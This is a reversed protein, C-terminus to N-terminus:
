HQGSHNRKVRARVIGYLETLIMLINPLVPSIVLILLSPIFPVWTGSVFWLFCSGSLVVIAVTIAIGVPIAGWIRWVISGGVISWGCIWLGDVWGSWVGLLPREGMAASILQSVMQAHIYVGRMTVGYPTSIHDPTGEPRNFSPDTVGIIVIRDKVLKSIYAERNLVSNVNVFDAVKRDKGTPYRYNLLISYNQYDLNKNNSSIDFSQYGGAHSSLAKLRAKGLKVDGEPTNEPEIGKQHLYQLALEWSLANEAPCPSNSNTDIFLLHRRLIDDSDLLVDSFVLREKPIFTAPSIGGPDNNKPDNVKCVAFLKDNKNFLKKLEPNSKTGASLDRYIDLGIARPQHKDIEQLLQTLKTDTISSSGKDRDDLVDRQTVEVVLIRPDPQEASRLQMMRDYAMLELPQLIGLHRVGLVLAAVALSAAMVMKFNPVYRRPEWNLLQCAPNQFIVPLWSACPYEGELGQLRERAERVALYSPQGSAFAKLFYKFFEQAIRDPIVERMVITQPINLSALEAALGLGDCSNFIALFLGNAIAIELAKKIDNPSVGETENIEILGREIDIQSSHGAFFLIDWNSERLKESFEARSPKRLIEIRDDPFHQKLTREDEAINIGKSNGLIALIKIKRKKIKARSASISYTRASLAIEANKYNNTFLDWINWPLGRLLKNDTQLLFIIEEQTDTKLLFKEKIDAFSSSELWKNLSRKLEAEAARCEDVRNLGGVIKIEANNSNDSDDYIRTTSALLRYSSQWNEYAQQLHRDPPLSGIFQEYFSRGDAAIKLTVAFGREELDGEGIELVVLKSM